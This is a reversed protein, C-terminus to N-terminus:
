AKLEDLSGGAELHEKVWRPKMGRGAWTQSSDAPNRFKPPLKVKAGPAPQGMNGLVQDVTYGQEAALKVFQDRLAKQTEEHIVRKAETAAEIVADIEPLSLKKFEELTYKAPM